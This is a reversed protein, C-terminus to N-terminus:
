RSLKHLSATPMQKEIFDAVKGALVQHTHTTPHLTDWFVFTDPNTCGPRLAHSKMYETSGSGIELCSQTVNSVQYQAPHSFVDNFLGYTDFLQLDLAAGYRGRMENVLQALKSNYELIQGAVKARDQRREFAPARTVDPLNLLVVHRAGADALRELSRTVDQIITDVPRSYNILDNGGIWVTFLTTQPRYGNDLQMYDRWSEVEQQLGPLKMYVKDAAAGGIAWNYLPLKFQQALYETWVKGNSFHGMFWSKSNPFRWQLANYINQTDSLSDGFAIIRDIGGGPSAKSNTWITSDFSLANNAGAVLAVPRHIGESDLTTRCSAMLTEQSVDSYFMNKWAVPSGSWWRGQVRFYDGGASARGWTYTTAPDRPDDSKRYYCRLYTYTNSTSLQMRNSRKVQQMQRAEEATMPGSPSLLAALEPDYSVEKPLEAASAGAACLLGAILFKKM